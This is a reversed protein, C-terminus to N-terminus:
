CTFLILVNIGDCKPKKRKNKKRNEKNTFEDSNKQDSAIHKPILQTLKKTATLTSQHQYKSM